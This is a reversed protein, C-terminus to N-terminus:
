DGYRHQYAARELAHEVSLGPTAMMLRAALVAVTADDASKELRDVAMKATQIPATEAQAQLYKDYLEPNERLVLAVAAEYTLGKGRPQAMLAKVALDIEVQALEALTPLQRVPSTPKPTPKPAPKGTQLSTLPVPPMAEIAAIAKARAKMLRARTEPTLTRYADARKYFAITAHRNAPLDVLSVEEIILDTLKTAM